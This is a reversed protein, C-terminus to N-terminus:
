GVTAIVLPVVRVAGHLVAIVARDAHARVGFIVEVSAICFPVEPEGTIRVAEPRSAEVGM